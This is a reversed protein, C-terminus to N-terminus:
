ITGSSSTNASSRAAILHLERELRAGAGLQNFRSPVIPDFGPRAHGLGEGLFELPGDGLDQLVRFGARDDRVAATPVKEVFEGVAEDVSQGLVANVDDRHSM